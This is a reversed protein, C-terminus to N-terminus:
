KKVVVSSPNIDNFRTIAVEGVRESWVAQNLGYFLPTAPLDQFLVDEAKQYDTTADDATKANNGDELAKDFEPSSYFTYNTGAPPTAATSYVPALFNYISPYDMSWGMRFPGTMGKSKQTPLYEAFPLSDLKYDVVGLNQKLQNGVAEMWADHDAGSNFWLDVPKSTDFGSEELLKKAAEPDYACADGCAGERYGSVVPSAFSDAPTRTDKFIAKTIAERDIAKSFALRVKPDAFRPDYTPFGLSTIDSRATQAYRGDFDTRATEYANQPLQLMVDLENAQVQTYATNYEDVVKIDLGGSKAKNEGKYDEFRSLSMGRNQIFETDAKFPGNGIPKKGFAEPNAFFAEPLPEFATYGLTTPFIAFPGNLAVTFTTDDVKKLGSLETAAPPQGEEAQLAEYGAVNEFFYSAGQLNASNATYNWAKIYSDSNVPTGDHFTQGPKLKITWNTNDESEVSEAAGSFAVSGDEDYNVLPEFLAVMVQHGESETTNGPILPNEPNSIKLSFRGNPDTQDGPVEPASVAAADGGSSSGGEDDDNVGCASIALAAAVGVVAVSSM